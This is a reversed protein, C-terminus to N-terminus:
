KGKTKKKFAEIRKGVNDKINEFYFGYDMSHYSGVPFFDFAQKFDEPNVSSCELIGTKTNIKADAVGPSVISGKILSGLNKSAPAYTDDIKWNIPNIVLPKGKIVPSPKGLNPKETNWSLLVGTDTEGKAFKLHPNEKMFDETICYGIMYAAVMQKLIERNEKLYTSLLKMLITTGQSHGALIFPKGNNFNEYYYKFSDVADTLLVEDVISHKNQAQMKLGFVPDVQRYLPAYVNTHKAFVGGQIDLCKNAIRVMNEDRIDAFPKLNDKPSVYSSPYLFFTDVDKEGDPLSLWSIRKSYDVGM